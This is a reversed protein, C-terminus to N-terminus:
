NLAAPAPGEIMPRDALMEGLGVDVLANVLTQPDTITNEYIVVVWEDEISVLVGTVGEQRKLVVEFLKTDSAGCTTDISITVSRPEAFAFGGMALLALTAIPFLQRM